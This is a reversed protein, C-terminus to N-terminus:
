KVKTKRVPLREKVFLWSLPRTWIRGIKAIRANPAGKCLPESLGPGLNPLNKNNKCAIRQLCGQFAGPRSRAVILVSDARGRAVGGRRSRM